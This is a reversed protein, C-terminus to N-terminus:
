AFPCLNQMWGVLFIPHESCIAILYTTIWLSSFYLACSKGCDQLFLCSIRCVIEQWNHLLMGIIFSFFFDKNRQGQISGMIMFNRLFRGNAVSNIFFDSVFNIFCYIRSYKCWQWLFFKSLWKNLCFKSIFVDLRWHIIPCEVGKWLVNFVMDM